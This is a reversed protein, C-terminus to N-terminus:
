KVARNPFALIKENEEQAWAEARRPRRRCSGRRREDAAGGDEGGAGCAAVGKGASSASRTTGNWRGVSPSATWRTALPEKRGSPKGTDQRRGRFRGGRLPPGRTFRKRAPAAARAAAAARDPRHAWSLVSRFWCWDGGRGCGSHTPLYM